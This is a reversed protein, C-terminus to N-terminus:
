GSWKIRASRLRYFGCGVHSTGTVLRYWWLWAVATRSRLVAHGGEFCTFRAGAPAFGPGLVPRRACCLAKFIYAGGVVGCLTGAGEWPASRAALVLPRLSQSAPTARAAAWRSGLLAARVGGWEAVEVGIGSSNGRAAGMPRRVAPM